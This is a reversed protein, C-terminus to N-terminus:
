HESFRGREAVNLVHDTEGRAAASTLPATTDSQAFRGHKEVTKWPEKFEVNLSKEHIVWNSGTTKLFDRQEEIKGDLITM